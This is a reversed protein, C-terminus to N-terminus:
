QSIEPVFLSSNQQEEIGCCLCWLQICKQVVKADFRVVVPQHNEQAGSDLFQGEGAIHLGMEQAAVRDCFTQGIHARKEKTACRRERKLRVAYARGINAEIWQDLRLFAIKSLRIVIRVVLCFKLGISFSSACWR